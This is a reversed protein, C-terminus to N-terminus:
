VAAIFEAEVAFSPGVSNVETASRAPYPEPMREAYVENFANFDGLDTFYVTVSIVDALSSGAAELIAEANDFITETEARVDGDVVDGTAPDIAVQGATHVTDGHRVAQSYPADSSYAEDTQIQEVM